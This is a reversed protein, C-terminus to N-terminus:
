RNIRAPRPNPTFGVSIFQISVTVTYVTDTSLTGTTTLTAGNSGNSPTQQSTKCTAQFMNPSQGMAVPAITVSVNLATGKVTSFYTLNTRSGGITTTSDTVSFSGAISWTDPGTAGKFNPDLYLVLTGVSSTSSSTDPTFPNADSGAPQWSPTGWSFGTIAGYVPVPLLLCVSVLGELIEKWRRANRLGFWLPRM